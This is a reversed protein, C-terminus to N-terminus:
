DNFLGATSNRIICVPWHVNKLRGDHGAIAQNMFCHHAHQRHSEIFPKKGRIFASLRPHPLSGIALSDLFFSWEGRRETDDQPATQDANMRPQNEQLPRLTIIARHRVATGNRAPRM